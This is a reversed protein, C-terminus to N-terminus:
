FYMRIVDLHVVCPVDRTRYNRVGLNSQLQVSTGQTAIAVHEPHVCCPVVRM